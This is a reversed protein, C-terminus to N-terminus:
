WGSNEKNMENVEMRLRELNATITEPIYNKFMADWIAYLTDSDGKDKYISVKFRKMIITQKM